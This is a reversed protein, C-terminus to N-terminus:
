GALVSRLRPAFEFLVDVWRTAMVGVLLLFIAPRWYNAIHLSLLDAFLSRVCTLGAAAYGCLFVALGTRYRDSSFFVLAVLHCHVFLAWFFWGSANRGAYLMGVWALLILALYALVPLWREIYNYSTTERFLSYTSVHWFERLKLPLLRAYDGPHSTVWEVARRMAVRNRVQELMGGMEYYEAPLLESWHKYTDGGRAYENNGDLLTMGANTTLPVFAQFLLANRAAWPILVVLCVGVAKLGALAAAARRTGPRLMLWVSVVIVLLLSEARTLLTLGLLFGLYIPSSQEDPGRQLACAIALLLVVYLNETLLNGSLAIFSPFVSFIAGSMLATRTSTFTTRTWKMLLWCALGALAANLLRGVLLSSGFLTFCGGLLLPYLPMSSATAPYGHGEALSTAIGVYNAADSLEPLALHRTIYVAYAVRIVVTLAILAATGQWARGCLELAQATAIGASRPPRQGSTGDDGVGM